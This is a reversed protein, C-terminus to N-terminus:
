SITLVHESQDLAQQATAYKRQAVLFAYYSKTVTAVLGRRAIELKAHALAEASRARKVAIGRLTGPTFDQHVVAWDRYVHVGDNTVFRSESLKGNGQTGLYESRGSLSPYRSARAQRLDEAAVAADNLAALFQPDNKQALELADKLTLTVPGAQPETSSVNVQGFAPLLFASLVFAMWAGRSPIGSRPPFGLGTQRAAARFREFQPRM